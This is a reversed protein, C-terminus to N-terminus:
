QQRDILGDRTVIALEGLTLGCVLTAFRKSDARRAALFWVDLQDLMSDGSADCATRLDDMMVRM